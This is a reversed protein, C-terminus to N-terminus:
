LQHLCTSFFKWLTGVGQQILKYVQLGSLVNVTVRRGTQMDSLDKKLGLNKLRQEM